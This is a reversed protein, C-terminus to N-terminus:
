TKDPRRYFGDVWRRTKDGQDDQHPEFKGCKRPYSGSYYRGPQKEFKCLGLGVKAVDLVQKNENRLSFNVCNFCHDM